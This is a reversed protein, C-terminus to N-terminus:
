ERMTKVPFDVTITTGKGIASEILIEGSLMDSRNKMNGLGNGHGKTAEGQSFTTKPNFGNGDDEIMLRLVSGVVNLQINIESAKSYKLCNNVAEQVIRYIGVEAEERLREDLGFSHFSIETRTVAQSQEVFQKIATVLGFDSLAGPMLKNSMARVEGIMEDISGKVEQLQSMKHRIGKGRLATDMRIRISTLIQGLGDHLELSIRKREEEQARVVAQLSMRREKSRRKEALKRKSVDTIRQLMASVGGYNVLRVRIEVPVVKGSKHKLSTDLDVKEGTLCRAIDEISTDLYKKPVFSVFSTDIIEDWKVGLLKLAAPNADIINGRENQVLIADPSEALLVQFRKETDIITDSMLKLISIDRIIGQYGVIDGKTSIRGTSNLVGIFSSGDKRKFQLEYDTVYGKNVIEAKFRIRDKPTRYLKKANLLLLEQQTYGFMKSLSKNAAKFNGSLDCIYVGDRISEFLDLYDQGGGLLGEPDM